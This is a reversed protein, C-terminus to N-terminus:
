IINISNQGIKSQKPSDWAGVWFIYTNLRGVQKVLFFVQWGATM